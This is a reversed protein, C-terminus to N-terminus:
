KSKKKIAADRKLKRLIISAEQSNKAAVVKKAKNVVIRFGCYPCTRTKQETKAALLGGCKSCVVIVFSSM